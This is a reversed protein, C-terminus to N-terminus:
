RGRQDMIGTKVSACCHSWRRRLPQRVWPTVWNGDSLQIASLGVSSPQWYRSSPMPDRGPRRLHGAVAEVLKPDTLEPLAQILVPMAAREDLRGSGFFEPNSVFRGLDEVGDVGAAALRLRLQEWEDM